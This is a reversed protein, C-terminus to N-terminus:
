GVNTSMAAPTLQRKKLPYWHLFTLSRWLWEVPGYNFYKLWLRCFYVQILFVPITILMNLGPSTKEFWGLGFPYFLLLGFFTQSLYVTLAMKGVPALPHLIKQWRVRYMLLTLGSLYFVTLTTNVTDFLFSFLLQMSPKTELGLKMATNVAFLGIAVLVLALSSWGSIKCIRKIYPRADVPNEFWKKRGAYMGLMFFGLTIYIRGSTFQFNFKSTLAQWNDKIMNTFSGNKVIDYYRQTETDVPQPTNDPANATFLNIGDIIRAPINFILLLSIIILLRNSINRILLLVLGLPVYISLIDGRWLAHHILGIAGLIILRWLYRMVFNGEKKQLSQMQLFFSLGFLFSFFTFFKGFIFIGNIASATISGADSFKEYVPQPLGAGSYWYIFHAFLIGLLAFGRLADVTIIRQNALETRQM